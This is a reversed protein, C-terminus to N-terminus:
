KKIAYKIEHRRNLAKIDIIFICYIVSTYIKKKHFILVFQQSICKILIKDKYIIRKSLIPFFLFVRFFGRIDIRKIYLGIYSTDSQKKSISTASIPM